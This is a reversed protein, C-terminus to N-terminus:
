ISSKASRRKAKIPQHYGELVMGHKLHHHARVSTERAPGKRLPRSPHSDGCDVIPLFDVPM